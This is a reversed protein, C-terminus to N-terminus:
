DLFMEKEKVFFSKYLVLAISSGTFSSAVQKKTALLASNRHDIAIYKLKGCYHCLDLNNQRNKKQLILEQKLM